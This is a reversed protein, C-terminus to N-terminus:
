YTHSPKCGNGASMQHIKTDCRCRRVPPAGTVESPRPRRVSAVNTGQKFLRIHHHHHHQVLLGIFIAPIWSVPFGLREPVDMDTFANAFLPHLVERMGLFIPFSHFRTYLYWINTYIQSTRSDAQSIEGSNMSLFEFLTSADRLWMPVVWPAQKKGQIRRMRGWVGPKPRGGMLVKGPLWLGCFYSDSLNTSKFSSFCYPKKRNRGM